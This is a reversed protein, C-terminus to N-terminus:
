YQHRHGSGHGAEGDMDYFTAQAAPHPPASLQGWAAIGVYVFDKGRIWWSPNPEDRWTQVDEPIPDCARVIKRFYATSDLPVFARVGPGNLYSVLQGTLLGMAIRTHIFHPDDTCAYVDGGLNRPQGARNEPYPTNEGPEEGQHEPKLCSGHFHTSNWQTHVHRLANPPDQVNRGTHVDMLDAGQASTVLSASTESAADSENGFSGNTTLVGPLNRHIIRQIEGALAMATALDNALWPRNADVENGLTEAALITGTHGADRIRGTLEEWWALEDQRDRYEHGATLIAQLGHAKLLDLGRVLGARLMDKSIDRQYWYNAPDTVPEDRDNAMLHAIRVSRFGASSIASVAAIAASEDEVIRNFFPFLHCGLIKCYGRDDGLYGGPMVRVRGRLLGAGGSSGGGSGAHRYYVSTM